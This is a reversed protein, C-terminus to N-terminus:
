RCDRCLDSGPVFMAPEWTYGCGDCLRQPPPEPTADKRGRSGGAGRPAPVVEGARAREALANWEDNHDVLQRLTRRFRTDRELEAPLTERPMRGFWKVLRTHHFDGVPESESFTYEGTVEGILLQRAPTDPTVVLDGVQVADRFAVLESTDAAAVAASSGRASILGRIEKDAVGNLDGLGPVDNWGLAISSRAEFDRALRSADGARVLWMTSMEGLM